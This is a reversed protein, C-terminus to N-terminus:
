CVYCMEYFRFYIGLRTKAHSSSKTQQKTHLSSASILTHLLSFGCFFFFYNGRSDYKSRKIIGIDSFKSIRHNLLQFKKKEIRFVHWFFKPKWLHSPAGPRSGVLGKLSATSSGSDFDTLAVYPWWLATFRLSKTSRWTGKSTPSPCCSSIPLVKFTIDITHQFHLEHYDNFYLQGKLIVLSTNM